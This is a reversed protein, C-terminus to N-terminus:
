KVPGPWPTTYSNVERFTRSTIGFWRYRPYTWFRWGDMRKSARLYTAARRKAQEIGFNFAQGNAELLEQREAVGHSPLMNPVDFRNAIDELIDRLQGIHSTNPSKLGDRESLLRLKKASERLFRETLYDDNGCQYEDCARVVQDLVERLRQRLGRQRGLAVVVAAIAAM